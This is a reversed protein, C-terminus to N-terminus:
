PLRGRLVDLVRAIENLLQAADRLVAKMLDM